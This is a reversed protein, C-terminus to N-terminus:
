NSRADRQDSKQVDQIWPPIATVTIHTLEGEGILGKRSLANAVKNEKRRKYEITYSLGLM